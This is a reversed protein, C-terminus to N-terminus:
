ISKKDNKVKTFFDRVEKETVIKGEQAFPRLFSRLKEKIDEYAQIGEIAKERPLTNLAKTGLEFISSRDDDDGNDTHNDNDNDNESDEPPPQYIPDDEYLFSYEILFNKLDTSIKNPSDDNLLFKLKQRFNKKLCISYPYIKPDIKRKKMSPQSDTKTNTNTNTNINANTINLSNLKQLRDEISNSQIYYIKDLVINDHDILEDFIKQFSQVCKWCILHDFSDIDPFGPLTNIDDDSDSINIVDSDDKDDTKKPPKTKQISGQKFGMLCDNHYWDEDCAIGFYCQLMVSTEEFPNYLQNCSCFKGEFNQNYINTSSPIDEGLLIPNENPSQTSNEALSSLKTSKASKDRLTCPGNLSMRRTGCDCVFSRKDFLEVLDHSSHCQISCSYCIGAPNNNRKFCTICAFISQRIPGLNFTCVNPDFPMLEKAERELRLQNNIYDIATITRPDGECCHPGHQASASM